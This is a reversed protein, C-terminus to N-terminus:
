LAAPMISLVSLPEKKEPVDERNNWVLLDYYSRINDVYHVPEGGRAKGYKVTKYYEKQSLLPLYQKVDAWKDPDEGARQTLVRADELHGFGVNYGALAMWIRDPLGVRKPVKKDMLRLYRAGGMISQVPDTRDKVKMQKATARTLMMIGKVGTPSVADPEWHSEQYGIAALLQWDFNSQKGAAKFHPLLPPLRQALHRQFNRKDVFGLRGVYGYYREIMQELTGDEKIREMYHNAATYLSSDEAHPFAWALPQPKTLDFAVLLQPYFRRSLVVQNSDAITFDILKDKVLILLEESEVDPLEEWKLEPHQLKLQQLHEAHSSGTTVELLGRSTDTIKKPRKSGARYVLQQTVEHYAPTYKVQLKRKETISLGAAAFHAKGSRILSQIEHFSNATLYKVKVGLEAAFMEVLEYELGKIGESDEYYTTPSDRTVVVMEGQQKIQELLPVPVACSLLVLPLLLSALLRMM